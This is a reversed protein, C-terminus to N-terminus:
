VHLIMDFDKRADVHSGGFVLVEDAATPVQRVQSPLIFFEDNFKFLFIEGALVVSVERWLHVLTEDATEPQQMVELAKRAYVWVQGGGQEGGVPDAELRPLKKFVIAGQQFFGGVLEHVFDDGGFGRPLVFFLVRIFASSRPNKLWCDSLNKDANEANM